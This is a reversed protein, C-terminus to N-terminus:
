VNPFGGCHAQGMTPMPPRVQKEGLDGCDRCRFKLRTVPVDSKGVRDIDIFSLAKDKQCKWCYVALTHQNQYLQRPTILQINM